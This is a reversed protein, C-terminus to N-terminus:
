SLEVVQIGMQMAAGTCDATGTGGPFAIVLQPRELLMQRNRKPGAAAGYRQWDAYFPKHPVGRKVAWGAAMADAGRADGHIVLSPGVLDLVRDIREADFYDRGGCVLIKM